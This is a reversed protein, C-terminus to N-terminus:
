HSFPEYILSYSKKQFCNVIEKAYPVITVSVATGTYIEEVRNTKFVNTHCDRVDGMVTSYNIGPKKAKMTFGIRLMQGNTLHTRSISINYYDPYFADAKVLTFGDDVICSIVQRHIKISYQKVDIESPIIWPNPNYRIAFQDYCNQSTESFNEFDDKLSWYTEYSINDGDSFQFYEELIEPATSQSNRETFVMYRIGNDQQIRSQRTCSFVFILLLLFIFPKLLNGNM